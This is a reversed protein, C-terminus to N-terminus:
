RGRGQEPYGITAFQYAPKKDKGEPYHRQLQVTEGDVDFTVNLYGSFLTGVMTAKARETRELGTRDYFRETQGGEKLRTVWESAYASPRDRHAAALERVLEWEPDCAHLSSELNDLYGHLQNADLIAGITRAWLQNTSHRAPRAVTPRGLERWRVVMSALEALLGLRNATVFAVVDELAFTPTHLTEDVHLNVPLARRRLDSGLQVINMTLVFLLDNQARTISSNSGLRRFAPRSDTVCRELVQSEIPRSTKVNDIVIVRDGCEIRTALQKELEVDEAVYSVTSPEIGETIV